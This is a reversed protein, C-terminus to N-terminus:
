KPKETNEQQTNNSNGDTKEPAPKRELASAKAGFSKQETIPNLFKAKSQVSGQEKGLLPNIRNRDFFSVSTEMM